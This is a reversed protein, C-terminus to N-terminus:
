ADGAPELPIPVRGPATAGLLAHAVARVSAPRFGYSILAPLPLDRVHAPNWLAVHLAPLSRRLAAEAAVRYRTREADSWPTRESSAIVLAQVEGLHPELDALQEAWVVPVDVAALADRLAAVPTAADSAAGAAVAGRGLLAVPRGPQLTAPTGVASIARTAAESEAQADRALRDSDSDAAGNPYAALLAAIRETASGVRAPDIRGERVGRELAELAALHERMPRNCLVPVDIGANLARLAAEGADWREAIARMDLADSFLVGGFGLRERLVGELTARSLTSPLEPDLASVLLHASMVAAAGVAIGAEFPPWELTALRWADAELRPLALHSDVAVDGHGPFHKLTAAVGVDQLGRVFAAVHRAVHQPDAGFAREAIVPNGPNSQVDAVPAFDVNVGIRRVGRGTARGLRESLEVDDVAGLAMASPAVSAGPLRVVTGGEQDIAIILPRAAAALIAEVLDRGQAVSELNRSFLCVGAVGPHALLEREDPALRTSTLDVLLPPHM